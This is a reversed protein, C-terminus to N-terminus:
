RKWGVELLQMVRDAANLVEIRVRTALDDPHKHGYSDIQGFEAWGGADGGSPFLTEWSGYGGSGFQSMADRLVPATAPKIGLFPAFDDGSGGHLEGTIKM